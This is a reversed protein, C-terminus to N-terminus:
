GGRMWRVLDLLARRTPRTIPRVRTGSRLSLSRLRGWGDDACGGGRGCEDSVRKSILIKEDEELAKKM